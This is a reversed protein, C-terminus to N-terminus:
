CIFGGEKVLIKDPCQSRLAKVANLGETLCLITGEEIIDIHNELLSVDHQTAKLCTHDLALQLLPRSM